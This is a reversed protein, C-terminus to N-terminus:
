SYLGRGSWNYCVSKVEGRILNCFLLRKESLDVNLNIIYIHTHTHTHTHTHSKIKIVPSYVTLYLILTFM